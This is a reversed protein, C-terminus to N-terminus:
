SGAYMCLGPHVCARAAAAAAADRYGRPGVKAEEEEVEEVVLGQATVFTESDRDDEFQEV